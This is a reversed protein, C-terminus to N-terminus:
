SAASQHEPCGAENLRVGNKHSTEVIGRDRMDALRARFETDPECGIAKALEPTVVWGKGRLHAVVKAGWPSLPAWEPAPPAVPWEDFTFSHDIGCCRVVVTFTGHRVAFSDLYAAACLALAAKHHASM